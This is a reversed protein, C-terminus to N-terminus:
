VIVHDFAKGGLSSDWGEGLIEISEFTKNKSNTIQSYKVVSVETDQGGM